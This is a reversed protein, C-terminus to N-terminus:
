NTSSYLVKVMPSKSFKVLSKGQTPKTAQLITVADWEEEGPRPLRRFIDREGHQGLVKPLNLFADPHGPFSLRRCSRRTLAWVSVFLCNHPLHTLTWVPVFLLNHPINVTDLNGFVSACCYYVSYKPHSHSTQNCSTSFRNTPCIDPRIRGPGDPDRRPSHEPFYKQFFTATENKLSVKLSV